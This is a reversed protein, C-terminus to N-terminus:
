RPTSGGARACTRFDHYSAVIRPDLAVHGGGDQSWRALKTQLDLIARETIRRYAEWQTPNVHFLGDTETDAEEKAIILPLAALLARLADKRVDAATFPHLLGSRPGDEAWRALVIGGSFLAQPQRDDHYPKSEGLLCKEASSILQRAWHEHKPTITERLLSPLTQITVYLLRHLLNSYLDLM